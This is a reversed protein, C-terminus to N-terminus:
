ADLSTPVGTAPPALAEFAALSAEIMDHTGTLSIRFDGPREFLTGPMVYVGRKALATTFAVADGGPAKGWLYFTGAPRTMQYGWQTMADYLRDRKRQYAPVDISVKELDKVAYQLIADPFACGSALQTKEATTRLTERAEAPMDPCIALYGLRLGPALLVKAFSYDILTWPYVEAPSTFPAGDFRIRRYPEDSLIFIPRGFEQSKFHLMAALETLRDRSYIVGTPNHPTNVIVIRTRATIAAEIAAVDLDFDDDRLPVKVTVAHCLSLSTEYLFWGPVPIICEDGPDLLMSFALTIAGYAGLTMAIDEPTFNLGLEARLGEAIVRRPEEESTKYAFWNTTQPEIHTRLASVLDPLPPEHPNGFTLDAVVQGDTAGSRYNQFFDLVLHLDNGASVTHDSVLKM